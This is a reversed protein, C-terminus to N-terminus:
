KRMARRADRVLKEATRPGRVGLLKFEKGFIQNYNVFFTEIEQIMNSNLDKASKIDSESRSEAPVALLRDNREKKGDDETQQAEIVGILRAPIVCGSFTPDKMFVLVDIPDGDSAKTGPLFGFDCPFYMGEPLMRHLTFAGLEPEFKYKHRSRRTTEIVVHWQDKKKDYPPLHLFDAAKM